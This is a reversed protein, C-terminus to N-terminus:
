SSTGLWVVAAVTAAVSIGLTWLASAKAHRFPLWHADFLIVRVGAAIHFVFALLTLALLVGAVPSAAWAAIRRYAVESHLSTDLGWLALPVCAFLAVGSIRHAISVVASLPFHIRALNLFRPRQAM